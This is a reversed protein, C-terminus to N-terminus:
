YKSLEIDQFRSQPRAFCKPVTDVTTTISYLIPVAVWGESLFTCRKEQKCFVHGPFTKMMLNPQLITIFCIHMLEGVKNDGRGCLTEGTRLDLGTTRWALPCTKLLFLVPSLSFFLTSLLYFISSCIFLLKTKLCNCQELFVFVLSKVRLGSISPQLSM